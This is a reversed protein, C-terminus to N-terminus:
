RVIFPFKKPPVVLGLPTVADDIVHRVSPETVLVPQFIHTDGGGGGDGEGGGYEHVADRLRLGAVMTSPLLMVYVHLKPPWWGVCAAIESVAPQRAPSVPVQL